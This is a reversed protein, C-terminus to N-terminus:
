IVCISMTDTTMLQQWNSDNWDNLTWYNELHKVALRDLKTEMDGPLSRQNRTYISRWHKVLNYFTYIQVTQHSSYICTRERWWGETRMYGSDIVKESFVGWTEDNTEEEHRYVRKSADQKLGDVMWGDVHMNRFDKHFESAWIDSSKRDFEEIDLRVWRHVLDIKFTM